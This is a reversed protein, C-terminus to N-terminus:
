GCLGRLKSSFWFGLGFKFCFLSSAKKGINGVAIRAKDKSLLLSFGENLCSGSFRFWGPGQAEFSAWVRFGLGGAEDPLTRIALTYVAPPFLLKFM